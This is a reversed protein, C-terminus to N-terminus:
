KRKREHAKGKKVPKKIKQVLENESVGTNEEIKNLTNLIRRMLSEEISVNNRKAYIFVAPAKIRYFSCWDQICMTIDNITININRRTNRSQTKRNVWRCNEPCYNGNNDIRDLTLEDTYGNQMAWNYFNIFGNYKGLWEVCIRIGRGGYDEYRSNKENLCRSKMNHYIKHIRTKSLNNIKMRLPNEKRLCGCSKTNGSKLDEICAEKINGCDCRCLWFYRGKKKQSFHLVTLRGFKEGSYDKM